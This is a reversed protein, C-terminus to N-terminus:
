VWDGPQLKVFDELLRWATPPNILAMAAQEIPIKKSIPWALEAPIDALTQWTGVDGRYVIRQGIKLSEVGAGMAVIQGVGERGAVAPLLKLRGYSGNILGFDSPHIPALLWQIRVHGALPRLPLAREVLDLVSEPNGHSKYIIANSLAM